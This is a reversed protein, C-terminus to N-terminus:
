YLSGRGGLIEDIRGLEETSFERKELAAVIDEIQSVKSAGILASTVEPKRLVWAVAMQALSQGRKQAIEHLQLIKKLNEEVEKEHLFRGDKKIRSDEPIGKLYRDTLLGQALPSFVISGIGEDKLINLLGDEIWRDFMNYQPQSAQVPAISLARRMQGANFNSVGIYRTKGQARLAAM